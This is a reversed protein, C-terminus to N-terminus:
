PTGGKYWEPTNLTEIVEKELNHRKEWLKGRLDPFEQQLKRRARSISDMSPLNGDSLLKMFEVWKIDIPNLKMEMVRNWWLQYSLLKDDDRLPPLISLLYKVEEKVKIIENM